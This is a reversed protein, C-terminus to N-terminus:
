KTEEMVKQLNILRIYFRKLAYHIHRSSSFGDGLHTSSTFYIQEKCEEALANIEDLTLDLIKIGSKIKRGRAITAL